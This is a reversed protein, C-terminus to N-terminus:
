ATSTRNEAKAEISNDVIYVRDTLKDIAHDDQFHEPVSRVSM